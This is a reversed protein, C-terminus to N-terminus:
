GHHILPLGWSNRRLLWSLGSKAKDIWGFEAFCGWQLTPQLRCVDEVDGFGALRSRLMM